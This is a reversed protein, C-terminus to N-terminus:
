LSHKDFLHLFLFHAVREVAARLVRGELLGVAGVAVGARVPAPAVVHERAVTVGALVVQHLPAVAGMAVVDVRRRPRRRRRRSRQGGIVVTVVVVASEFDWRRWGAGVSEPVLGLALTSFPFPPSKLVALRGARVRVSVLFGGLSPFSRSLSLPLPCLPVVRRRGGHAGHKLVGWFVAATSATAASGTAAAPAAAPTAAGAAM